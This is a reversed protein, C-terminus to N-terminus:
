LRLAALLRQLEMQFAKTAKQGHAGSLRTCWRVTFLTHNGEKNPSASRELWWGAHCVLCNPAVRRNNTSDVHRGNIARSVMPTPVAPVGSLGTCVTQHIIAVVGQIKGLLPKNVSRALRPV